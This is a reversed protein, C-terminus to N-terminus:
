RIIFKKNNKIYIGKPLQNPDNVNFKRGDITYIADDNQTINVIARDIANTIDTIFDFTIKGNSTNERINVIAQKVEPDGIQWKYNPLNMDYKLESVNHTGPFPDGAINNYYDVNTYVKGTEPNIYNQDGVKYSSMLWGDAPVIAMRPKGNENNPYDEVNVIDSKYNVHYVLLGHGKQYYNWGKNQINEMLFYERKTADNPNMFRYAKGGYDIPEIEIDKQDTTLTDIKMWGMTEREWATYPPPFNGASLYEGFDMLDWLEMEQNDIVSGDRPYLDPLGLCHSFEHCFLGIGNIRCYPESTYSGPFGNLENCDLWRYVKAGDFTGIDVGHSAPWIWYIPNASFSSSYGAFVVCVFDVYGDGDSDYEKKSFDIIDDAALCADKVLYRGRGKGGYYSHKNNLKVPGYVDFTPSFKGFSCDTFYKNVSGGLSAEGNILEKDGRHEGNFYYEFSKKPNPLTFATDSFEALIVIGKVNGMHPTYINKDSISARRASNRFTEKALQLFKSKDQKSILAEEMLNREGKNHALQQSAKINGQEDIDAVYFSDGQRIIIAGDTTTIWSFDGNGHGIITLSTGDSQTVVIPLRYASVAWTSLTVIILCSFLFLRRM